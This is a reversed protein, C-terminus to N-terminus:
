RKSLARLQALHRRRLVWDRRAKLAVTRWPAPRMFRFSTQNHRWAAYPASNTLIVDVGNVVRAKERRRLDGSRIWLPQGGPGIPISVDYVLKQLQARSERSVGQAITRAERAHEAMVAAARRRMRQALQHANTTFAM